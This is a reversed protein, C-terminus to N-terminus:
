DIILGANYCERDVERGDAAKRLWWTDGQMQEWWYPQVIAGGAPRLGLPNEVDMTVFLDRRGDALTVEIAVNPDPYEAGMEDLLRLRRVGAICPTGEYPEIVAVFTSQLPAQAARRRVMLRPIWTEVSSDYLGQTVWGECTWAEAGTTLDFYRLHVQRRPDILKYRDEISWDVSWGPRPNPDRRFNRMQTGFGFDGAPQLSLGSTEITGFHSHMFKAHDAGGVVRFVDILYYSRDSVDVQAVTREYQQGGILAPASARIAHLNDADIWLTTKGAADAHRKGDVVVTNHAATMTYWTAKPSGWGGFQVPPYGFDPMLDLGHAFLGLNMGDAHSHGGGSDYDLWAARANGGHGSRLIALHWQQKNVSGVSPVLGHRGIAQEVEAQTASPDECFLDHPLGDVRSGNAEYLIQAYAPDATQRYLRHLLGFMSPWVGPSETISLGVYDPMPHAFSGTDGSLPYYRGLCRTDIHFCYTEALRPHREFQAALFGPDIRAFQELFVGLGQITFASYGALGKEGTVGDIATAQDLMGDIMSQVQDRNAPWDLIAHMTILAIPQRPYNSVIKGSNAIADRLIGGELNRQIDAFSAKPNELGHQKAKASLFAILDADNKLGEFVQDYALAMERTEECADHWTSVYGTTRVTEYVWAQTNHDFRPYLDAVRDLLVGAKHAYRPDGTVVYAAALSRIGGLVAQKWQGYILYAGIFRWRHEGEVYGEGDDTGFLRLPDKPDPHEGNFLLSRDARAPAFVGHEDLGSRYFAGFDNKPFEESCHPCWVKWPRALADMRWNYMPVGQKCSPCYGNSWVMWSRTITPGFMLSWLQDDSMELWPQASAVLQDRTEAAWAQQQVNRRATEVLQTPFFVSADKAGASTAIVSGLLCQIAIM